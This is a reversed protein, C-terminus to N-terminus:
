LATPDIKKPDINLESMAETLIKKKISKRKYLAALAAFAIHRDDVEFLDRLAERTDSRGYGDTGLVSFDDPFWSSLMLPLAKMFDSAAIVPEDAGDFCEEVYTKRPQEDPHLRNWRTAAIADDYLEKYSTVSWIEATVDYKEELLEKAKMVQLMIAGSGLLIVKKDKKGAKSFKYMGKLIGEEAGKPMAPMHYKENAATIYYFINERDVYMRKLGDRIIVSIEFAFAPDYAKLNPVSLAM